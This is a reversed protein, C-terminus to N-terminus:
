VYSLLTSDLFLLLDASVQVPQTASYQQWTGSHYIVKGTNSPTYHGFYDLDSALPHSKSQSEM